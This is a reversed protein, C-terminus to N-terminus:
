ENKLWIVKEGILNNQKLFKHAKKSHIACGEATEPSTMCDYKGMVFYVPYILRQLM